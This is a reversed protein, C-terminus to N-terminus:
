RDRLEALARVLDRGRAFGRAEILRVAHGSRNWDAPSAVVALARLDGADRTLRPEALASVALGGVLAFGAGASRLDAVVTSLARELDTV